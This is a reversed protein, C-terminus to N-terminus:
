RLLCLAKRTKVVLFLILLAKLAPVVCFLLSERPTFLIFPLASSFLFLGTYSRSALQPGRYVIWTLLATALFVGLLGFACYAEAIYSSGAGHGALFYEPSLRYALEQAFIGSSQGAQVTQQGLSPNFILRVPALLPSFIFRINEIKVGFIHSAPAILEGSLGQVYVFWEIVKYITKSGFLDMSGSRISSVIQSVSFLGAGFLLWTRFRVRKGATYTSLWIGALLETFAGGRAGHTVDLLTLLMFAATWLKRSSNSDTHASDRTTLMLGIYGYFMLSSALSLGPFAVANHGLVYLNYYSGGDLFYKIYLTTEISSSVAGVWFTMRWVQLYKESFFRGNTKVKWTKSPLQLTIVTAAYGIMSCIISYYYVKLESATINIGSLVDIYSLDFVSSSFAILPRAWVFVTMTIFFLLLPGSLGMGDKRIQLALSLIVISTTFLIAIPWPMFASITFILTSSILFLLFLSSRNFHHSVKLDCTKNPTLM